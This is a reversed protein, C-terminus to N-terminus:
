SGGLLAATVCADRKSLQRLRAIMEEQVLM